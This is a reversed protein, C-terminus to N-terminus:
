QQSNNNRGDNGLLHGGDGRVFFHEGASDCKEIQNDSLNLKAWNNSKRVLGKM